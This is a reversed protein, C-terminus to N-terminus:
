KDLACPRMHGSGVTIDRLVSILVLFPGFFLDGNSFKILPGMIHPCLSSM